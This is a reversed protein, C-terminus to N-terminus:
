GDDTLSKCNLLPTVANDAKLVQKSKGSYIEIKFKRSM